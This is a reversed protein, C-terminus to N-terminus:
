RIVVVRDYAVLRTGEVLRIIYVGSGLGATSFEGNGYSRTWLCRGEMDWLQVQIGQKDALSTQLRFTDGRVPNPVPYVRPYNGVESSPIEQNSVAGEWGFAPRMMLAGTYMSPTWIWTHTLRDYYSYLIKGSVDSNQDFGINLYVSSEQGFGIYFDGEELVLPQPLAYVGFTNIGPYFEPQMNEVKCLIEGPMTDSAGARWVYLTLPIQNQSAFSQNFYVHVATLTDTKGLHFRYAFTAGAYNLGWGAEASGDDYALCHGFDLKQEVTDNMRGISEQQTSALIHRIRYSTPEQNVDTFRYTWEMGDQEPNVRYGYRIFAFVDIAMPGSSPYSDLSMGDEALVERSYQASLTNAGLNTFTVPVSEVLMSPDFQRYPVQTYDKLVKNSVSVFAVDDVLTDKWSRGHDLYVYDIHWQGGATEVDSNIQSLNRFRFRFNRRFYADQVIPVMVKRFYHKDQISVTSSDHLPCFEDMGMGPSSWVKNWSSDVPNFFELILEESLTPATGRRTSSWTNGVGGGPQYYFSLFVSDEAGLAKPQPQWVSDLRIEHSCLTDAGYLLDALAHPYILGDSDLGDFTAVGYTPPYIPYTHNVYVQPTTWIKNDPYPGAYSFDDVLPLVLSPSVGAEADSRGMQETRKGQSIDFLVPNCGLPSLREMEVGTKRFSQALICGPFAAWIGILFFGKVLRRNMNM